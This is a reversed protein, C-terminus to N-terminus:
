GITIYCEETMCFRASVHQARAAGGAHHVLGVVGITHRTIPDAGLHRGRFLVQAAVVADHVGAGTVQPPGGAQQAPGDPHGVLAFADTLLM